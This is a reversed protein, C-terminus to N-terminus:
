PAVKVDRAKNAWAKRIRKMAPEPITPAQEKLEAGIKDLDGSTTAADIADLWSAADEDEVPEGQADPDGGIVPEHPVCFSVFLANRYAISTAKSVAKYQGDNAEGYFPGVTCSTGDGVCVFTFAGSVSVNYTDGGSKTKRPTVTLEAYHPVVILGHADLLPAFAMLADDIGRFNFNQEKNKRLKGVGVAHIDHQVAAMAGYVGLCPTAPKPAIQASV